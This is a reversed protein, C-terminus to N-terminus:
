ITLFASPVFGRAPGKLIIEMAAGREPGGPVNSDRSCHPCQPMLISYWWIATIGPDSTTVVITLDLAM